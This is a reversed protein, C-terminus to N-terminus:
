SASAACRAVNTVRADPVLPWFERQLFHRKLDDPQQCRELTPAITRWVERMAAARQTMIADGEALTASEQRRVYVYLPDPIHAYRGALSTVFFTMLLDEGFSVRGVGHGLCAAAKRWCAARILKNAVSNSMKGDLFEALVSDGSALHAGGGCNLLSRSQDFEIMSIGCQVLDADHARAAEHMTALFHEDVIDDADVFALYPARAARAGSLRAALTGQNARHRILSVRRDHASLRRVIQRVAGPSGDDVVIVEIDDLSQRLVSALCDALYPETRFVPVVVSIKPRPRLLSAARRGLAHRLIQTWM